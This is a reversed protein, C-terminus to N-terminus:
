KGPTITVEVRRNRTRGEETANSSVPQAKGAGRVAFREAPLSEQQVFYDRKKLGSGSISKSSLPTPVDIDTSAIPQPVPASPAADPQPPRPAGPAPGQPNATAAPPAAAPPVDAPPSDKRGCAAACILLSTAVLGVLSRRM